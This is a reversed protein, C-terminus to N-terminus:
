SISSAMNNPSRMKSCQETQPRRQYLKNKEGAKFSKGEVPEQLWGPIPTWDPVHCLVWVEINHTGWLPQMIDDYGECAAMPLGFPCPVMWLLEQWAEAFPSFFASGKGGSAGRASLM